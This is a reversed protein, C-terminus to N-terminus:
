IDARCLFLFIDKKRVSQALAGKHLAQRTLGRCAALIYPLRDSTLASRGFLSAFDNRRIKQYIKAM